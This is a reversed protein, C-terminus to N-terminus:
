AKTYQQHSVSTVSLLKLTLEILTQLQEHALGLRPTAIRSKRREKARRNHQYVTLFQTNCSTISM